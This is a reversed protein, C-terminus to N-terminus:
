VYMCVWIAQQQMKGGRLKPHLTYPPPTRPAPTAPTPNRHFKPNSRCSVVVFNATAMNQRLFDQAKQAACNADFTMLVSRRKPDVTIGKVRGFRSSLEAALHQEVGKGFTAQSFTSSLPL